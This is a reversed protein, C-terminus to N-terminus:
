EMNAGVVAIFIPTLLTLLSSSSSVPLDDEMNGPQFLHFPISRFPIPLITSIPFCLLLILHDCQIPLLVVM